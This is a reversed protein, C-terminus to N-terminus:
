GKIAWIEMQIDPFDSGIHIAMGGSEQLKSWYEGSRELEFYVFGTHYPIQRPAVPLPRVHIGPLQLNVLDRIQEVPGIKVQAPFRNRLEETPITASIALVFGAQKYLTKDNIIAVRVGYSREQVPISIANQELVMSLSQRLEQMVPEFSLQLNDHRYSSVSQPRKTKSTFTALEGAIELMAAFLREPHLGQLDVLHGVLLEYRNVAQLLLFDAIEATGGRGSVAVRGALAEGRHHLLGAIEKLFASLGVVAQCDLATPLYADDLIVNGDSRCEVIRAIGICAYDDRKDSGLLLRLRLKGVQLRAEHESDSNTDRTNYERPLYRALGHQDDSIDMEMGGARKVPVGLYVLTDCTDVPINMPSPTDDDEPVNFPTGDPFVGCANGIGVKGLKLLQTDIQLKTFGWPYPNLVACRGEVYSELYRTHQQFHQPRLFMGESWVVKNNWSM